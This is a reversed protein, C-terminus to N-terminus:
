NEVLEATVVLRQNHTRFEELWTGTCTILKLLKGSKDSFVGSADANFDYVDSKAVVFHLVSGDKTTLYIDDGKRLNKLYFFVAPLAFGDDVHGAIIASGTNGPVTGYKYWGVDFFNSPTAMNGKRTIGVEDVKTDLNIKPIVLRVPYTSDASKDALASQAVSASLPIEDSPAYYLASFLIWGIACLAIFVIIKILTKKTM